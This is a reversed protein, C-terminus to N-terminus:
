SVSWTGGDLPTSPGYDELRAVVDGIWERLGNVMEALDAVTFPEPIENSCAGSAFPPAQCIATRGPTRDFEPGPNCHSLEDAIEKLSIAVGSLSSSFDGITYSM